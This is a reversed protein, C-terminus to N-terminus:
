KNKLSKKAKHETFKGIGWGFVLKATITAAVAAVNLAIITGIESALSKEPQAEPTEIAVVDM